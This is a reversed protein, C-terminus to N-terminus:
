ASDDTTTRSKIDLLEAMADRSIKFGRFEKKEGIKRRFSRNQTWSELPDPGLM